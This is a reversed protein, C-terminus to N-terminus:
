QCKRKTRMEKLRMGEAEEVGGSREGLKQKEDGMSVCDGEGGSWKDPVTERGEGGGMIQCPRGGRGEWQIASDGEGAVGKIQCLKGGRGNDPVAERGNEGM